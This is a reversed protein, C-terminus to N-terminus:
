ASAYCVVLPQARDVTSDPAALAARCETAVLAITREDGRVAEQRYKKAWLYPILWASSMGQNRRTM